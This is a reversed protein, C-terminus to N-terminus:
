RPWGTGVVPIGPRPPASSRAPQTAAPQGARRPGRGATVAAGADRARRRSRPSPEPRGARPSPADSARATAVPADAEDPGRPQALRCSPKGRGTGRGPRGRTGLPIIEADAVTAESSAEPGLDELSVVRTTRSPSGPPALSTTGFDAFAEETTYRPEFGLVTRMRTTDMGRGYTLFEVQEPSFDALGAQRCCRASAPAMAFARCRSSPRPRAPADGAVAHDCGDGAVNFTGHRRGARRAPPRSCTTRTCSSSARTSGSCRRSRPLRFYAALPRPAPGLGNATRLMTVIVDPRRRSFGRVYGEVEVIDKAYGTRPLRKPAMDETFMAPDRSSAGYVTRSKVVLHRLAPPRVDIFSNLTMPVM